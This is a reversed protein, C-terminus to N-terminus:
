AAVPAATTAAPTVRRKKYIRGTAPPLEPAPAAGLEVAKREEFQRLLRDYIKSLKAPSDGPFEIGGWVGHTARSAVANYGCRGIFPCTQCTRAARKARRTPDFWPDNDPTPVAAQCPTPQDPRFIRVGPAFLTEEAGLDEAEDDTFPLEPQYNAPIRITM